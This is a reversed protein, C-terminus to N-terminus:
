ITSGFMVSINGVQVSSRTVSELNRAVGLIIVHNAVLSLSQIAVIEPGSNHGEAVLRRVNLSHLGILLVEM